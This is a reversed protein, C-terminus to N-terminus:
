NIAPCDCNYPEPRNGLFEYGLTIQHFGGNQFRVNGIQYSYTYAFMFKKYNVGVIPTVLQLQQDNIEHFFNEVDPHLFDTSNFTVRIRYKDAPPGIQFDSAVITKKQAIFYCTDIVSSM